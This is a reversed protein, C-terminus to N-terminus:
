RRGRAAEHPRLVPRARGFADRPPARGAAEPKRGRGGLDARRRAPRGARRAARRRARRAVERRGRAPRGAGSAVGRRDAGGGGAARGDGAPEGGTRLGAGARRDLAVRARAPRRDGREDGPPGNGDSEADPEPGFPEVPVRPEDGAGRGARTASSDAHPRAPGALNSREAASAGPLLAGAEGRLPRRVGHVDMVLPLAAWRMLTRPVLTPALADLLSVLRTMAPEELALGTELAGALADLDFARTLRAVLSAHREAFAAPVLAVHPSLADTLPSLTADLRRVEDASARAGRGEVPLLPLSRVEDLADAPLNPLADFLLEERALLRERSSADRLDEILRAVEFAPPTLRAQMASPLADLQTTDVLPREGAYLAAWTASAARAVDVAVLRDAGDRLLPLARLRADDIPALAEIVVPGLWAPPADGSRLRAALLAHLAEADFPRAGLGVAVARERPGLPSLARAGGGLDVEALARALEPAMLRARSPAVPTGDAGPLCAVDTLRARLREALPSMSATLEDPASLAPLVDAGEGSLAAVLEGLADGAEALLAANWASGLELRERDLTVDFRAHVVVRLGSREATPLFAYLTPGRVPAPAGREDLAVAVRVESERAKGPEREGSFRLMRALTRYRRTEDDAGRETPERGESPESRVVRAFDADGDGPTGREEEGGAEGAEASRRRAGDRHLTVVAGVGAVEDERRWASRAEGEVSLARVHALTMLTEAPLAAARAHLADPDLRRGPALPLVLVTEGPSAPAEDDAPALARPISVHAIEFEFPGSRVRPRESVEYVSKFGVGFFGIQDVRKTTQGISLVGVLDLFSFPAGDHRVVIRAPEITVSWRRAGADDANQLLEFFFHGPDAYVRDALLREANAQSISKPARALVEIASAVADRVPEAWRPDDQLGALREGSAFLLWRASDTDPSGELAEEARALVAAFRAPDRRRLWRAAFALAALRTVPWHRLGADVVRTLLAAVAPESDRELVHQLSADPLAAVLEHISPDLEDTLRRARALADLLRAFPEADPARSAEELLPRPDGEDAVLAEIHALQQEFPLKDFATM